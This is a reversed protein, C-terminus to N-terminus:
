SVYFDHISDASIVFPHLSHVYGNYMDVTLGDDPFNIRSVEQYMLPLFTTLLLACILALNVNGNIFQANAGKEVDNNINLWTALILHLLTLHYPPINVPPRDIITEITIDSGRRNKTVNTKVQDDGEASKAASGGPIVRSM